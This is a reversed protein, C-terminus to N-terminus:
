TCVLVFCVVFGSKLLVQKFRWTAINILPQWHLESTIHINYHTLIYFMNREYTTMYDVGSPRFSGRLGMMGSGLPDPGPGVWHWCNYIRAPIVLSLYISYWGGPRYIPLTTGRVHMIRSELLCRTSWTHKWCFFHKKHVELLCIMNRAQPGVCFMNRAQKSWVCHMIRTHKWCVFDHMNHKWCLCMTRKNELVCLMTMRTHKLCLHPWEMSKFFNPKRSKLVFM